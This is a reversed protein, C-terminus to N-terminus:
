ITRVITPVGANFNILQKHARKISCGEIKVIENGDAYCLSYSKLGISLFETLDGEDEWKGLATGPTVQFENPDLSPDLM